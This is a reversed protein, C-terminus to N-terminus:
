IKYNYQNGKLRLQNPPYSKLKDSYYKKKLNKKSSICYTLYIQNRSKKSLNEKSMHPIFENFMVIEGEKLPMNRFIPKKLDKVKLKEFQKGIMKKNNNGSFDFILNSNTESSEDISIVFSIFEKSYNLWGAQADQHLRDQRAGPPKLNIKDKFLSFKKKLSTNLFNKLFNSKIFKSISNKESLFNEIRFLKKKNKISNEYYKHINLNESKALKKIDKKFLSIKQGSIKTKLKLVGYKKFIKIEEPSLSM